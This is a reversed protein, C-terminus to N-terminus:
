RFFTGLAFGFNSTLSHGISIYVIGFIEAAKQLQFQFLCMKFDSFIMMKYPSMNFFKNSHNELTRNQEIM